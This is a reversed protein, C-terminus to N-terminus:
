KGGWVQCVEQKSDAPRERMRGATEREEKVAAETSRGRYGEAAVLFSATRKLVRHGAQRTANRHLVQLRLRAGAHVPKTLACSTAYTWVAFFFISRNRVEAPTKEKKGFLM